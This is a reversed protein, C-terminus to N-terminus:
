KCSTLFGFIEHASMVKLNIDCGPLNLLINLVDVSGHGAASHLPTQGVCKCRFHLIYCICQLHYLINHWLFCGFIGNSYVHLVFLITRIIYIAFLELDM